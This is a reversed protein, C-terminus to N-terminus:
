SMRLSFRTLKPKSGVALAATIDRLRRWLLQQSSAMAPAVDDLSTDKFGIPLPPLAPLVALTLSGVLTGVAQVSALLLAFPTLRYTQVVRRYLVPPM